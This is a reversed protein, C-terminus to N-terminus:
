LFLYQQFLDKEDRDIQDSLLYKHERYLKKGQKFIWLSQFVIPWPSPHIFVNPFMQQDAKTVKPCIIDIRDWYKRFEEITNYFSGQNGQALSRDGSIM